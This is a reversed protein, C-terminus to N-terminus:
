WIHAWTASKQLSPNWESLGQSAYCTCRHCDDSVGISIKREHTWLMFAAFETTRSLRPLFAISGRLTNVHLSSGEEDGYIQWIFSDQGQNCMYRHQSQLIWDPGWGCRTRLNFCVNQKRQPNMQYTQTGWSSNYRCVVVIRLSIITYNTPSSSPSFLM